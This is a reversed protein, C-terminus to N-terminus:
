DASINAWLFVHLSSSKLRIMASPFTNSPVQFYWKVNVLTMIGGM